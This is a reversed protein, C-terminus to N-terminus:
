LVSEIAAVLAANEEGTRVAVRYWTDDLGQYNACRRILFGRQLLPEYLDGEHQFMLYNAKGEIVRLGLERLDRLMKAREADVYARTRAAWGEASLAAVGAVQAPTSVAWSQGAARVRELLAADACIGYGLRLGAMSYLKTFARMVILNPHEGCLPVMSPEDTFDLFCEDLVVTSGVEAAAEVIRVVLDHQVTLGTPNNPNCLFVLAGSNRAIDGVFRDTVNFGEDERLAHRVIEVGAQELAEEYGSFCPATVLARNPRLALCVRQMLDTAGATCLVAEVDVGEARAIAARLERCELDPYADFREVNAHLAEIVAPPMGLPNLNASFDVAGEHSYIDGGHEFRSMTNAM